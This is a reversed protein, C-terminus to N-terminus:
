TPSTSNRRSSGWTNRRAGVGRFHRLIRNQVATWFPSAKLNNVFELLVISVDDHHLPADHMHERLAAIIAGVIGDPSRDGVSNLVARLRERGFLQGAGNPAELVGDTFILLRDGESVRQVRRSYRTRPEM